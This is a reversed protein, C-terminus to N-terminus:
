NVKFVATAFDRNDNPDTPSERVVYGGVAIRGHRIAVGQAVSNMPFRAFAVGDGSFGKDRAGGPKYRVVTMDGGDSYSGIGVIKGDPQIAVDNFREESSLLDTLVRGNKGFSGDLSGDTKYRVLAFDDNGNSQEIMGAVVVKGDDQLAINIAKSDQNNTLTVKLGGAGFNPDLNGNERLRALAIPRQGTNAYAQGAVVVKGNELVVVGLAYSEPYGESEFDIYRFGNGGAFDPDPDGNSLFRAVMMIYDGDSLSAEGAVVIKGGPAPAVDYAADYNGPPDSFDELVTGNGGFDDDPTGNANFRALGVSGYSDGAGAVVIKGNSQVAVEEGFGYTGDMGTSVKGDASFQPDLTGNPRYRMVVAEEVGPSVFRSGAVVIKDDPQIAVGFAPNTLGYDTTVKGDGSFSTDLSGPAAWASMTVFLLSALGAIASMRFRTRM